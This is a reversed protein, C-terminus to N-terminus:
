YARCTGAPACTWGLYVPCSNISSPVCTDHCEAVQCCVGDTCHGNACQSPSECRTGLSRKSSSDALDRSLDSDSADGALVPRSDVAEISLDPPLDIPLDLSADAAPSFTPAPGRWTHIKVDDVACGCLLLWLITTTKM